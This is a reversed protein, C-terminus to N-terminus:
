PKGILTNFREHFLLYTKNDAGKVMKLYDLKGSIISTMNLNIKKNHVNDSVYKALFFACTRDYGYHEWYYLWMRLQKIYCKHVNEKVNVILGTM